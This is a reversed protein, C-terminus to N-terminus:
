PPRSYPEARPLNVEFAEVSPTGGFVERALRPLMENEPGFRPSGRAQIEPEILIDTEREREITHTYIYIYIYTYVYTHIYM